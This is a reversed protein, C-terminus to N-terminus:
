SNGHERLIRQISFRGRGFEETLEEIAKKKTNGEQMIGEFRQLLQQIESETWRKGQNRPRGVTPRRLSDCLYGPEVTRLLNVGHSFIESSVEFGTANRNLGLAVRATSFGGLFLDCVLEGENSSYQMMKTLLEDPLENKNKSRGPKYERDIIWVDERDRYNLSGGQDDREQLGYRCELNFTRRGGPKAYYLIHYHSSVYKRSTYVGFNYKWIIHNIEQLDTEHLANLIHILNSYGSIVYMQGGPRLIREAERIWKRSFSPYDALPIEVYGDVVHLENRNYHRHLADGEIGYPPDTIILDVSEDAFHSRVGEICDMNYFNCGHITTAVM